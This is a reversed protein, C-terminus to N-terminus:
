YGRSVDARNEMISVPMKGQDLGVVYSVATEGNQLILVCKAAIGRPYMECEVVAGRVQDAGASALISVLRENKRVDGTLSIKSSSRLLLAKARDQFQDSVNNTLAMSFQAMLLTGAILIGKKM